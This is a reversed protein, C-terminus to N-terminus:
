ESTAAKTKLMELRSKSSSEAIRRRAGHSLKHLRAGILYVSVTLLAGSVFVALRQKATMLAFFPYPWFQNIAFVYHVWVGYLISYTMIVVTHSSSKQFTNSILLLDALLIVAPLLHLGIDLVIPIRSRIRLNYITLFWSFSHFSLAFRQVGPM